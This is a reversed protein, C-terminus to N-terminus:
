RPRSQQVRPCGAPCRAAAPARRHGAARCCRHRGPRPTPRSRRGPAARPEGVAASVTAVGFRPTRSLRHRGWRLVLRGHGELLLGILGGLVGHVLLAVGDALLWRRRVLAPVRLGTCASSVRASKSPQYTLKSSGCRRDPGHTTLWSWTRSRSTSSSRDTRRLPRPRAPRRRRAPATILAPRVGIRRQRPLLRPARRGTPHATRRRTPASAGEAASASVTTAAPHKTPARAPRSLPRTRVAPM